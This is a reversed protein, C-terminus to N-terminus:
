SVHLHPSSAGHGAHLRALCLAMSLNCKFERANERTPFELHHHFSPTSRTTLRVPFERIRPGETLSALLAGTPARAPARPARVPPADAPVASRQAHATALRAVATRPALAPWRSSPLIRRRFPTRCDSASSYVVRWWITKNLKTPLLEVKRSTIPALM